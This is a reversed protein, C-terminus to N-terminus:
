SIEALLAKAYQLGELKGTNHAIKTKDKSAALARTTMAIKRDIGTNFRNKVRRVAKFRADGIQTTAPAATTSM